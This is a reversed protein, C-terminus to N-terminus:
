LRMKGGQAGAGLSEGMYLASGVSRDSSLTTAGVVDSLPYMNPLFVVKSIVTCLNQCVHLIYYTFVKPVAMSLVRHDLSPDVQVILWLLNKIDPPPWFFFFTIFM